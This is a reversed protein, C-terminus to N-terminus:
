SAVLRDADRTLEDLARGLALCATERDEDRAVPIAAGFVAACRAFPGPVLFEDWTALHRAPRAAVALPVIPAGTLAALAVAGPQVRRAPGRPGDPIIAIDEGASMAAALARVAGVGGRSSSGRVAELGFRAVFRAMLEGDRSRSVLVRTARAGHTRRLRANLWPIMLIRGHWAVYILPRGAGWLPVLPGLGCVTLRLTAGLLRVLVAAVPPVLAASIAPVM